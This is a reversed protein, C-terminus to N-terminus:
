LYKEMFIRGRFSGDAEKIWRDQRGFEKFGFREYLTVAPNDTYVQLHIVEIKFRTKALHIVNRLLDTGVGKDRFAPNVIIGFECQHMLKRYPQLYLTALGCVEGDILGTLSCDYKSFSIWRMVSDDIEAPNEMPFWRLIGPEDFWERLPIKDEDLTFRVELGKFPEIEKEKGM